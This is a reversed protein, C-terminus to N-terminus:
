IVKLNLVVHILLFNLMDCIISYPAHMQVVRLNPIVHIILFNLVDCITSYIIGRLLSYPIMNGRSERITYLKSTFYQLEIDCCVLLNVCKLRDLCNRYSCFSVHRVISPM